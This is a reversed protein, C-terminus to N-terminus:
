SSESVTSGDFTLGRRSIAAAEETRDTRTLMLVLLPLSEANGCSVVADRLLSLAEETRGANFLLVAARRVSDARGARSAARVMDVVEEVYGGKLLRRVLEQIAADVGEAAASRLLRDSEEDRGLDRQVQALLYHAKAGHHGIGAKLVEVCAERRGSKTLLDALASLAQYDLDVLRRLLHEAEAQHDGKLLLEALLLGLSPDKEPATRVDDLVRLARVRMPEDEFHGALEKIAQNFQGAMMRRRLREGDIGPRRQRLLHLLASMAEPFATAARMDRELLQWTSLEPQRRTPTVVPQSDLLRRIEEAENTRGLRQLLIFLLRAASRDGRQFATRLLQEAERKQGGNHLLIALEREAQPNGNAAMGRLAQEIETGRRARRLMALLLRQAHVDGSDAAQRLVDEAERSKGMQGLLRWLQSWTSVRGQAYSAWWLALAQPYRGRGSASAGLRELDDADGTHVALARWMEDSVPSCRRTERGQQHIFDALVYGEVRNEARSTATLLSIGGRLPECAYGLSDEFWRQPAAARQPGNLSAASLKRLLEVSLPSLHGLRRADIAANVVARKYPDPADEWRSMLDPGGSLTQTVGYGNDLATLATALRSDLEATQHANKLEAPTFADRVSIKTAIELLARVQYHPDPTGPRPTRTYTFWYEPWMSGIAVVESTVALLRRIEAAAAEGHDDEFYIQSENLWLVTRPEVGGGLTALLDTAHLPHLLRWDPLCRAIAEYASRTKGTSSTGVLMVLAPPEPSDLVHRLLRDHDRQVYTPLKQSLEPRDIAPDLAIAPHVGLAIPDSEKVTATSVVAAPTGEPASSDAPRSQAIQSVLAAGVLLATVTWTLPVWWWAEIEVTSTALNGMLGIAVPIAVMAVPSAAWRRRGDGGM